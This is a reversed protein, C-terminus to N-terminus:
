YYNGSDKINYQPKTWLEKAEELDEVEQAEGFYSPFYYLGQNNELVMKTSSGNAYLTYRFTIKKDKIRGFEEIPVLHNDKDMKYITLATGFAINGEYPSINAGKAIYCDTSKEICFFEIDEDSQFLSRLTSSLNSIKLTDVKQEQKVVESFVMFGVLSIILIVIILEILTFAKSFNPIPLSQRRPKPTSEGDGFYNKLFLRFM